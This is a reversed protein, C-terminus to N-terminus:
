AWPHHPSWLSIKFTKLFSLVPLINVDVAHWKLPSKSIMLIIKFISSSRSWRAQQRRVCLQEQLHDWRSQICCKEWWCVSLQLGGLRERSLPAIILRGIFRVFALRRSHLNGKKRAQLHWYPWLKQLRSKFGLFQKMAFEKFNYIPLSRFNYPPLSRLITYHCFLRRLTIHLLPNRSQGLM